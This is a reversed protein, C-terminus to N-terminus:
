APADTDSSGDEGFQGGLASAIEDLRRRIAWRSVQQIEAIEGIKYDDLLLEIIAFSQPKVRSRILQLQDAFAAVEDPTPEGSALEALRFEGEDVAKVQGGAKITNIRDIRKLIKRDTLFAMLNWLSGGEPVCYKGDAVGMLVSRFVTEAISEPEVKPRLHPGIKRNALALLRQQYREYVQFAAAEDGALFRDLQKALTDKHAVFSDSRGPM